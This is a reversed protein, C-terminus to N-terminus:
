VGEHTKVREVTRKEIWLWRVATRYKMKVGESQCCGRGWRLRWRGIRVAIPGWETIRKVTEEKDLRVIHGTWRM